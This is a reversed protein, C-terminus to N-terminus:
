KARRRRTTKIVGLAEPLPQVPVIRPTGIKMMPRLFRVVSSYDVAELVFFMTHEPAAIYSGHVKVGASRIHEEKVLQEVPKPDDVPCLEPTHTHTVLFLM